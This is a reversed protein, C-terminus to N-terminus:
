RIMHAHIFYMRFTILYSVKTSSIIIRIKFMIIQHLTIECKDNSWTMLRNQNSNQRQWVSIPARKLVKSPVFLIIEWKYLWFSFQKSRLQLFPLWFQTILATSCAKSRALSKNFYNENSTMPKIAVSIIATSVLHILIKTSSFSLTM